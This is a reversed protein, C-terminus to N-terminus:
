FEGRWAEAFMGIPGDAIMMEWVDGIPDATGMAWGIFVFIPALFLLSFAMFVILCPLLILVLATRRMITNILSGM